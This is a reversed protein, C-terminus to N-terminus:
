DEHLQCWVARANDRNSVIPLIACKDALWNEVNNIIYEGIDIKKGQFKVDLLEGTEIVFSIDWGDKIVHFHPPNHDNSWIKVEFSDFPFIGRDNTNIRATEVLLGNEEDGTENLSKSIVENVVEDVIKNIKDETIFCKKNPM